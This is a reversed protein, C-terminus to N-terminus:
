EIAKAFRGLRFVELIRALDAVAGGKNGAKWLNLSNDFLANIEAVAVEANGNGATDLLTQLHRTVKGRFAVSSPATPDSMYRAIPAEFRQM